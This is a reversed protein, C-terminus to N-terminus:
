CVSSCVLASAVCTWVMVAVGLRQFGGDSSTVLFHSDTNWGGGLSLQMM